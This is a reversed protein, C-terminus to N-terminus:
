DKPKVEPPPPMSLHSLCITGTCCLAHKKKQFTRASIFTCGMTPQLSGGVPAPTICFPCKHHCSVSLVKGLVWLIYFSVSPETFEGLLRCTSSAPQGAVGGLM